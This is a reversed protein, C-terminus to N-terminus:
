GRAALTRAIQDLHAAGHGSYIRALDAVTVDGRKPHVGTRDWDAEELSELLTAWRAHLGSIITLSDGIEADAADAFSAWIDPDNSALTPHEEALMQKIRFVAVFHADALHHVNQAVTWEGPLFATTLADAPLGTVAEDLLAPLERIKAITEQRQAATLAPM